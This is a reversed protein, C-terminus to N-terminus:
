DFLIIGTHFVDAMRIVPVVFYVNKKKKCCIYLLLVLFEYNITYYQIYALPLVTGCLVSVMM